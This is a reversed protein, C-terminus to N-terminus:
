IVHLKDRGVHKIQELFLRRLAVVIIHNDQIRGGKCFRTRRHIRRHAAILFDVQASHLQQAIPSVQDGAGTRLMNQRLHELADHLGGRGIRVCMQLLHLEAGLAAVM